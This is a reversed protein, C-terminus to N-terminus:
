AFVVFIQEPLPDPPGFELGSHELSKNDVKGKVELKRNSRKLHM